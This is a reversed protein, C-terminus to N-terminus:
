SWALNRASQPSATSSAHPIEAYATRTVLGQKEYQRLRSTLTHPGM